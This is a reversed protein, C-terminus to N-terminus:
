YFNERCVQQRKMWTGSTSMTLLLFPRGNRVTVSVPLSMMERPPPVGEDRYWSYVHGVLLLICPTNLPHGFFVWCYIGAGRGMCVCLSVCKNCRFGAWVVGAMMHVRKSGQATHPTANTQIQPSPWSGGGGGGVGIIADLPTTRWYIVTWKWFM